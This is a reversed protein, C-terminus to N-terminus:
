PTLLPPNTVLWQDGTNELEVESTAGGESRITVTGLDDNVEVSEVVAERFVTPGHVEHEVGLDLVRDCGAVVSDSGILAARAPPTLLGLAAEGDGRACAQLLTSVTSEAKEALGGTGPSAPECGAVTAAVLGAAALAGAARAGSAIPTPLRAQLAM